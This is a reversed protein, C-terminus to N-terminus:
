VCDYCDDLFFWVWVVVFLILGIGYSVVGLMGLNVIIISGM